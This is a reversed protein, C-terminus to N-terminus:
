ALDARVGDFYNKIGRALAFIALGFTVFGADFSGADQAASATFLGLLAAIVLLLGSVWPAFWRYLEHLGVARTLAERTPPRAPESLGPDDKMELVEYFRLM